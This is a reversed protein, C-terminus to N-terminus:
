VVRADDASTARANLIKVASDYVDNLSVKGGANTAAAVVAGASSVQQDAPFANRMGEIAGRLLRSEDPPEVHDKRVRDLITSFLTGFLSAADARALNRSAPPTTEPPTAPQSPSLVAVQSKRVEDRRARAMSAFPTDGFQRIFDDLVAISTTDKTAAWAQAAANHTSLAPAATTPSQPQGRLYFEGILSLSLEPLQTRGTAEYVDASVRRFV